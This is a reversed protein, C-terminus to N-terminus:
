NPILTFMSKEIFPPIAFPYGGLLLIQKFCDHLEKLNFERLQYANIIKSDITIGNIDISSKHETDFRYHSKYYVIKSFLELAQFPHIIEMDNLKEIERQYQINFFSFSDFACVILIDSLQVYVVHRLIDDIYDFHKDSFTRYIYLEYPKPTNFKIGKILESMYYYITNYEKMQEDTLMMPSNPDKINERYTLEKILKSYYLKMLWWVIVEENLKIFSDYGEASAQQIQKEWESMIGGNCEKCCPVTLQRYPTNSGNPLTIFENYLNYREQLWKPYIHEQTRTDKNLKNRCMVCETSFRNDMQSLEYSNLPTLNIGNVLKIRTSM